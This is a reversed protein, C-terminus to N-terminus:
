ETGINSCSTLPGHGRIAISLTNSRRPVSLRGFRSAPSIVATHKAFNLNQDIKDEKKRTHVKFINGDTRLATIDSTQIPELWVFARQVGRLSSNRELLRTKRIGLDGEVCGRQRM